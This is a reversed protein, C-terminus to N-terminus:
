GLLEEASANCKQPLLLGNGSHVSPGAERARRLARGGNSGTHM